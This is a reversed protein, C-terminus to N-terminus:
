ASMARATGPRGGEGHWPPGWERTEDGRGPSEIKIVEAGLDALVMTAFPGALVRSFDLVRVGELAKPKQGEIPTLSDSPMGM